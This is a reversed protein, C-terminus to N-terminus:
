ISPPTPTDDEEEEDLKISLEFEPIDAVEAETSSSRRGGGAVDDTIL